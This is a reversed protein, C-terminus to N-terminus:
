PNIREPFWGALYSLDRLTYLEESIGNSKNQPPQKNAIEQYFAYLSHNSFYDPPFRLSVQIDKGDTPETEHTVSYWGDEGKSFSYARDDILAMFTHEHQAAADDKIWGATKLQSELVKIGAAQNTWTPRPTQQRAIEEFYEAATHQSFYDLPVTYDVSFDYGTKYTMWHRARYGNKERTLMYSYTEVVVNFWDNDEYAKMETGSQKKTEAYEATNKEKMDTQKIDAPQTERETKNSSRKRRLHFRIAFFTAAPIGISAIAAIEPSGFLTEFIRFLIAILVMATCFAIGVAMDRGEHSEKTATGDSVQSKQAVLRTPHEKKLEEEYVSEERRRHENYNAKALEYFIECVESESLGQDEAFPKNREDCYQVVFTDREDGRFIEVIVDGWNHGGFINTYDGLHEEELRRKLEDFTMYANDGKRANWISKHDAYKWISPVGGRTTMRPMNGPGAAVDRILLEETYNRRERGTGKEQIRFLIDHLVAYTFVSGAIM